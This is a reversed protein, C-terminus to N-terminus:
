IKINKFFYFFRRTTHTAIRISNRGSPFLLKRKLNILFISFEVATILVFLTHLFFFFQLKELCTYSFVEYNRKRRSEFRGSLRLICSPFASFTCIFGDFEYAYFFVNNKRWEFKMGHRLVRLKFFFFVRGGGIIRRLGFM